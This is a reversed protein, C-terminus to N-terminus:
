QSQHQSQLPLLVTGSHMGQVGRPGLLHGVGWPVCKDEKVAYFRETDCGVWTNWDTLQVIKANADGLGHM